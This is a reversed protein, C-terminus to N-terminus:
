RGPAKLSVPCLVADRGAVDDDDARDEGRLSLDQRLAAHEHHEPNLLRTNGRVGLM